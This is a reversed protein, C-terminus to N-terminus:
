VELLSVTHRCQYMHIYRPQIAVLNRIHSSGYEEDGPSGALTTCRGKEGRRTLSRQRQVNINWRRKNTTIKYTVAVLLSPFYYLTKNLHFQWVTTTYVLLYYLM